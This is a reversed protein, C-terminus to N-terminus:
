RDFVHLAAGLVGTELCGLMDAYKTRVANFTERSRAAILMDKQEDMRDLFSRYWAGYELDLNVIRRCTWGHREPCSRMESMTHVSPPLCDSAKLAAADYAVYDFIALRAAASAIDCFAGFCTDLEAVAYLSNFAMIADVKPLNMGGLKTIDGALFQSDQYTANAFAMSEADLDVGIVVAGTKKGIADATGGRGCGADLVTENASLNLHSLVLDIAEEEGPHAFDGGRILALFEKNAFSNMQM